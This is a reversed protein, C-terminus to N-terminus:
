CALSFGLRVVARRERELRAKCNCHTGEAVVETAPARPARWLPAWRMGCGDPAASHREVARLVKIAAGRELAASRPLVAQLSSSELTTDVALTLSGERPFAMVISRRSEERTTACSTPKGLKHRLLRFAPSGSAEQWLLAATDADAGPCTLPGPQAIAAQHPMAGALLLAAIANRAFAFDRAFAFNFPAGM